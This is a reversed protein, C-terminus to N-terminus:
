RVSPYISFRNKRPLYGFIAPIADSQLRRAVRVLRHQQEFLILWKWYNKKEKSDGIFSLDQNEIM